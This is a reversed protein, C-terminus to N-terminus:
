YLEGVRRAIDRELAHIEICIIEYALAPWREADALRRCDRWDELRQHLRVVEIGRAEAQPSARMARRGSTVTTAGNDNTPPASENMDQTKM